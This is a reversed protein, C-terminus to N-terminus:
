IFDTVGEPSRSLTQIRGPVKSRYFSSKVSVRRRSRSIIKIQRNTPIERSTISEMCYVSTM